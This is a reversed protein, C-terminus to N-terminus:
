PFRQRYVCIFGGLRKWYSRLTGKCSPLIIYKVLGWSMLISTIDKKKKKKSTYVIICLVDKYVLGTIVKPYVELLPIALVPM